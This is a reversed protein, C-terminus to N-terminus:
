DPMSSSKHKPILSFFFIIIDRKLFSLPNFLFMSNGSLPRFFPTVGCAMCFPIFPSAEFEEPSWQSSM